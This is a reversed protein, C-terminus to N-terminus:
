AVAIVTLVRRAGPVRRAPESRERLVGRLTSTVMPADREVGRISMCTHRAEVLVGVAVPRLHHCLADAIQDTLREQVQLRRSYAQVLRAIKSLGVIGNSPVYGVTCHGIFPLLHHECLSAFPIARVVILEDHVEEFTVALLAAVDVDYGSTRERLMRLVRAPTDRLGDRDPDEGIYRLLEVVHDVPADLSRDGNGSANIVIHHDTM